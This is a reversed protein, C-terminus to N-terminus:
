NGASRATLLAFGRYHLVREVEDESPKNGPDREAEGEGCLTGSKDSPKAM